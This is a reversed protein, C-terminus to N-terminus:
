NKSIIKEDVRRWRGYNKISALMGAVDLGLSPHQFHPALDSLPKLVFFREQMLPHPVKLDEEAIILDDCLLIDLDIERPSARKHRVKRGMKKEIAKLSLLLDGPKLGCRIELVLNLYKRQREGVGWPETEYLFSSRKIRVGKVHKLYTVADRINKLRNGLNSGLGIYCLM